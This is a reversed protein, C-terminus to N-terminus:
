KPPVPKAFLSDPLDGNYTIENIFHQSSPRGSIYSDIRLPTNVGQKDFWRSFEDVVKQRIGRRSVTWYEVKEPLKSMRNFYIVVEDNEPDVIKVLDFIVEKGEGPGLYFMRDDPDRYRPRFLIDISHKVLRKFGDMEEKTAERTEKRGELIWGVNAALDFVTIDQDKKNNGLEYREKDPLRTYDTFKIPISSRGERDFTFTRGQSVMDTVNLFTDGGM